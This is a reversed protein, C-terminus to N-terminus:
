VRGLLLTLIAMRIPLGNWAEEFYACWSTGDVDVAIEDTRPLPHMVLCEKKAFKVLKEKNVVYEDPTKDLGMANKMSTVYIVDAKPMNDSLSDVVDYNVNLDGLRKKFDDPFSLEKPFNLLVKCEDFLSMSYCLTTIARSTMNGNCLLTLNDLNGRRKYITYLDLLCQTPHEGSPGSTFASVSGCGGSIVPVDSHEALIHPASAEPHRIVIIDSYFTLMQATDALSECYNKDGARSAEASHFGLVDGGLRQMASTFSLRTRTSPQFFLAGLVKDALVQSKTRSNIIPEMNRAVEFVREIEARNLDMITVLNRGKLTSDSM